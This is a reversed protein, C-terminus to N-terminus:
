SVGPILSIAQQQVFVAVQDLPSGRTPYKGKKPLSGLFVNLYKTKHKKLYLHDIIDITPCVSGCLYCNYLDGNEGQNERIFNLGVIIDNPGCEELIMEELHSITGHPAEIINNITLSGEEAKKKNKAHKKGRAHSEWISYNNMHSDCVKCYFDSYDRSLCDEDTVKQEGVKKGQIDGPLLAQRSTSPQYPNFPEPSGAECMMGSSPHSM